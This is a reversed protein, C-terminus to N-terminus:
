VYEAVAPNYYTWKLEAQTPIWNKKKRARENCVAPAPTLQNLKPLEEMNRKEGRWGSNQRM